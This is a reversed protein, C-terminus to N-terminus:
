SCVVTHYTACVKVTHDRSSRLITVRDPYQLKLCAILSLVIINEHGDGINNGIEGDCKNPRHYSLSSCLLLICVVSYLPHDMQVIVLWDSFKSYILSVDTLTVDCSM